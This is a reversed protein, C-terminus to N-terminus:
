TRTVAEDLSLLARAVATWTAAAVPDAATKGATQKAAALDAVFRRRASAVFGRLSEVERDSPSRTLVLRFGRRLIWEVGKIKEHAALRAGLARALENLMPDNMLSLAQLATDSVDRRAKCAEGSPADFTNYFAFPATRKVFTYVSRRYRDEGDSPIWSPKGYAVETVGKPQPPRVPKGFMKESLLGSARLAADRLIEAELRFRPARSLLRNDPDRAFAEARVHSSQRYTASTVILRHLQKRSWGRNMFGVALWDLLAPHTPLDGQAGFDGVTGVIGRGFFAAWHRNVVVRAALPSDPSVLWRAFGLRDRKAGEPWAHLFAPVGATVREKPTLFEGRHHRHTPRPNDSPRERFVLTTDLVPRQRLALIRSNFRALEVAGSLYERRLRARGADNLQAEPLGLLRDVEAGLTRSAEGRYKATASIRFKGLSSSFHRGFHMEIELPVGARIPAKLEFEAVHRHGPRDHISWGTQLDGDVALLASVPREGFRNAAFSETAAAIKVSEGSARVRFESLYFDGKTGEYYTMGPGRAPLRDDPLAELRLAVVEHDLGAFRLRYTDHKSTDGSAFVVSDAEVTLRPLNSTARQPSLRTWRSAHV